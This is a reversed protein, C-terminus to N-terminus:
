DSCENGSWGGALGSAVLALPNMAAARRVSYAPFRRRLEVLWTHSRRLSRRRCELGGSPGFNTDILQSALRIRLSACLQGESAFNSLFPGMWHFAGM